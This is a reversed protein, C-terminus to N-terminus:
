QTPRLGSDDLALARELADSEWQSLFGALDPIVLTGDTHSAVGATHRVTPSLSSAKSISSLDVEVLDDAQDVRFAIRRNGAAALILHEDIAPARPPLGMRARLDLVPVIQGRVDIAGEVVGPASAVPTIAVSRVVEHVDAAPVALRATGLHFGLLLM